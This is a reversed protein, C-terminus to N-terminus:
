NDLKQCEPIPSNPGYTDIPADPDMVDALGFRDRLDQYSYGRVNGGCFLVNITGDPFTWMGGENDTAMWAENAGRNATRLHEKARGVYHTDLSTTSALDPWPDQGLEMQERARRYDPDDNRVGPTFYRDLNEETHDFIKSTWTSLVFRYGGERPLAKKHKTKYLELWQYHTRLQMRDAEANAAGQSELITPLLVAALVGIISIVILLEILTFGSQSRRM